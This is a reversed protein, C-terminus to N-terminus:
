FCAFSNDFLIEEQKEQSKTVLTSEKTKTDKDISHQIFKIQSKNESSLLLYDYEELDLKVYVQKLYQLRQELANISEILIHAVVNKNEVTNKHASLYSELSFFPFLAQFVYEKKKSKNRNLYKAIWGENSKPKLRFRLDLSLISNM